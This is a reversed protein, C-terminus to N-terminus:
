KDRAVLEEDDLVSNLFLFEKFWLASDKPHRTLNHHYDVYVLGFRVKYGINWEYNDLLSWAFYGKVDVGDESIAKSLSQLHLQHYELRDVDNLNEELTKSDNNKDSWGNETIYISPNNYNHKIYNVIKRIGIPYSLINDSGSQKGILIDDREKIWDVHQDTMYSAKELDICPVNKAYFSGYYNIGVYDYSYKKLNKSEKQTFSPLRDGVFNKMSEPYDGFTLPSLHWGVLFDLTRVVAEQDEISDESHPEFWPPSLVIGIKGDQCKKCNRFEKVAAAHALLLNHTVIYPETGSDGEQCASNKWKSCRGPAKIGRDYGAVSYVWPENFTSWLKVKDGFEYFCVRAFDRFDKVISRNLFGKYEEELVLPLDWHFITAMPSLGNEILDNILDKYFQVGERNVGKSLKGGPLIRSWSISFRFGNMNLDKMLQIDEKYRHYFDLAIDGNGCNTREPYKHSFYDWISSNRGGELVAGEYQYSASATGFIFDDPFCERRFNNEPDNCRSWPSRPLQLNNYSRDSLKRQETLALFSVLVLLKLVFYVPNLAM